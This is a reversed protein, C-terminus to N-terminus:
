RRYLFAVAYAAVALLPLGVFVVYKDTSWFRPSGLLPAVADLVRAAGKEGTDLDFSALPKTRGLLQPDSERIAAYIAFVKEGFRKNQSLNELSAVLALLDFVGDFVEESRGLVRLAEAPSEPSGGLTETARRVYMQAETFRGVCQASQERDFGPLMNVGWQVSATDVAQGAAISSLQGHNALLLAYATELLSLAEQRTEISLKENSM